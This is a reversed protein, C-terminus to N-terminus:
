TKKRNRYISMQKLSVVVELEGCLPSELLNTRKGGMDALSIGSRIQDGFPEINIIASDHAAAYLETGFHSLLLVCTPLRRHATPQDKRAILCAYRVAEREHM